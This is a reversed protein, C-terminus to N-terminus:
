KIFVWGFEKQFVKREICDSSGGMSLFINIHLLFQSGYHWFKIYTCVGELAAPPPSLSPGFASIELDTHHFIKLSSSTKECELMRETIRESKSKIIVTFWLQFINRRM